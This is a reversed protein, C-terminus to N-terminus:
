SSVRGLATLQQVILNASETKGAGSEGSIVICQLIDLLVAVLYFSYLSLLQLENTVNRKSSIENCIKHKTLNIPLYVIFHM